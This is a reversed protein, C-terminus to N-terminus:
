LEFVDLLSSSFAALAGATPLQDQPPQLEFSAFVTVLLRM